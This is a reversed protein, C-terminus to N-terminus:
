RIHSQIYCNMYLYDLSTYMYQTCGEDFSTLWRYVIMFLILTHWKFHNSNGSFLAHRRGSGAGVQIVTEFIFSTGNWLTIEGSNSASM